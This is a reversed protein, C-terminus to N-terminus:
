CLQEINLRGDADFWALGILFAVTGAGGSGRRRRTWSFLENRAPLGRPTPDLALLALSSRARRVRPTWPCGASTTRPRYCGTGAASRGTSPRRSRSRCSARRRSRERRPRRRSGLSFKPWKPGFIRSCARAAGPSRPAGRLHRGLNLTALKRKLNVLARRHARRREPRRRLDRDRGAEVPRRAAHVAHRSRRRPAAVRGKRGWWSASRRRPTRARSRRRPLEATRERTRRARGIAELKGAVIRAIKGKEDIAVPSPGPCGLWTLRAASSSGAGILKGDSLAVM